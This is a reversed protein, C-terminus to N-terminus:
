RRTVEFRHRNQQYSYNVDLGNQDAITKVIALGLGNSSEDSTRSTHFRTFLRDTSIAQNEGTNAISFGNSSILIELKGGSVNYKIANGLVNSVLSDALFPHISHLFPGKNEVSVNIQKDQILDTFLQLYRNIVVGFDLASASEYQRNEIKAILLLGKNLKSLRGLSETAENIFQAQQDSLTQSQMLLELRSQVVALPTQMEHAANETFEKMIQYDHNIKSTMDNLATNLENFEKTETEEFYVSQMKNLEADRIKKLSARFPQWLRRSIAWNFILTAAFLGAFVFLMLNTIKRILVDRQELSQKITLQYPLGYISVVQSLKRYLVRQGNRPNIEYNDTIIPHRDIPADVPYITFDPTTLSVANGREAQNQLYGIWERESIALERNSREDIERNFQKFLFLGTIALLPVLTILFYLNTKTLLRM